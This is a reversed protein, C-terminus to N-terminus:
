QLRACRRRHAPGGSGNEAGARTRGSERALGKTGGADRHHQNRHRSLWLLPGERRLVARRQDASADAERRARVSFRYNRYPRHALLDDNIQPDEVDYQTRIGLVSQGIVSAPDIGTVDRFRDSVFSFRLNADIEFFYDSAAEAFMRLRTESARLERQAIANGDLLEKLRFMLAGVEDMSRPVLLRGDNARNALVDELPEVSVAFGAYAVYSVTGAYILVLTWILWADAVPVNALTSQYILFSTCAVLTNGVGVALIRMRVPVLTRGEVFRGFYRGFLDQLYLFVPILINVINTIAIGFVVTLSPAPMDAARGAEWGIMLMGGCVYAVVAVVGEITLRQLWAFNTPRGDAVARVQHQLRNRLLAVTAFAAAWFYGISWWPVQALNRHVAPLNAVNLYVIAFAPPLLLALLVAVTFRLLLTRESM